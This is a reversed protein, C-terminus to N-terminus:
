AAISTERQNQNSTGSRRQENLDDLFDHTLWPLPPKASKGHEVLARYHKTPIGDAIWNSVASRSKGIIESITARGGLVRILAPISDPVEAEITDPSAEMRGM